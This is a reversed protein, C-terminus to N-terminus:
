GETIGAAVAAPEDGYCGSTMMLDRVADPVLFRPDGGGAALARIASSSIELGTVPQVRIRGSPARGLEVPDDCRRNRIERALGGESPVRWGPRHMVVLHALSFLEAARHWSELGLFADAGLVLCLPRAGLEARLSVLTDVTYSPGERRTERDDVVLRPEGAVAARLMALRQEASAVPPARHPPRAAPVLLIRELGCSELVELAPRLHGYHVPDFSGGLLGVAGSGVRGPVATRSV